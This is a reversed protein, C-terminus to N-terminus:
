RVSLEVSPTMTGSICVRMIYQGKAASPRLRRLEGIFAEINTALDEGTFGMRGVVTHINGGADNRFNVKGASYETVMKEVDPGVTGAKPSPMKGVPGLVRGLRGVKPMMDPTAVALDFDMWGGQVRKVLDDGGAESAGAAKAKEINEDQCFAIVRKAKGIGKPLSVSGRVMQDQQKPDIGLRVVLEVTQDFKTAPFAQLAKIGDELNLPQTPVAKVAENFRRSPRQRVRRNGGSTRKEEAGAVKVLKVEESKDVMKRAM